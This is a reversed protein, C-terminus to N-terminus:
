RSARRRRTVLGLAALLGFLGGLSLANQREPATRCACSPDRRSGSGFSSGRTGGTAAVPGGTGGDPNSGGAAGSGGSGGGGTAGSGGSSTSAGAEGDPPDGTESGASGPAGGADDSGAGASGGSGTAELLPEHGAETLAKRILSEFPPVQTYVNRIGLSTCDAGNLISYV